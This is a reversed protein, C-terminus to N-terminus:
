IPEVSLRKVRFAIVEQESRELKLALINSRNVTATILVPDPVRYRQRNPFSAAVNRDLSWCAGELHRASCGRYITVDDQLSEYVTLEKPKMMERLPGKTGLLIRLDRLHERVNDVNTWVEGLLKLWDERRMRREFDLVLDMLIYESGYRYVYARAADFSIEAPLNNLDTQRQDHWAVRQALLSPYQSEDLHLIM